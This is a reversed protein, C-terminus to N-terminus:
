QALHGSPEFASVSQLQVMESYWGGAAILEAHTGREAVEGDDIVIEDALKRLTSLRHAIIIVTQGALWPGINRLIRGETESDLASTFEDLVLIKRDNTMAILPQALAIRQMQGSLTAGNQGIRTRYKMPMRCIDEHICAAKAVEVVERMSAEPRRFRFMNAIPM